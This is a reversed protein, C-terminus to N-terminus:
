GGITNEIQRDVFAGFCTCSLASPIRCGTTLNPGFEKADTCDGIGPRAGVESSPGMASVTCAFRASMEDSYRSYIM